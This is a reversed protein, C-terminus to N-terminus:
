LLDEDGYAWEESDDDEYDESGSWFTESSEDTDFLDPIGAKTQSIWKRTGSRNYYYDQGDYVDWYEAGGKSSGSSEEEEEEEEEIKFEEGGFVDEISTTSASDSDEVSNYDYSVDTVPLAQDEGESRDSTSAGVRAALEAMTSVRPGVFFEVPPGSMTGASEVLPTGARRLPPGNFVRGADLVAAPLLKAAPERSRPEVSAVSVTLLSGATAKHEDVDPTLLRQWFAAAVAAHTAEVEGRRVDALVAAPNRRYGILAENDVTMTTPDYLLHVAADVIGTVAWAERGANTDSELMMTYSVSNEDDEMDLAGGSSGTVTVFAAAGLLDGRAGPSSAHAARNELPGVGASEWLLPLAHPAYLIAMAVLAQTPSSGDRVFPAAPLCTMGFVTTRRYDFVDRLIKFMGGRRQQTPNVGEDGALSWSVAARLIGHNMNVSGDFLRTLNVSIAAAAANIPGSSGKDLGAFFVLGVLEILTSGTRPPSANPALSAPWRMVPAIRPGDGRNLLKDLGIRADRQLHNVLSDLEDAVQRERRDSSDFAPARGLGIYIMVAFRAAYVGLDADSLVGSRATHPLRDHAPIFNHGRAFGAKALSARESGTSTMWRWHGFDIAESWTTSSILVTTYFFERLTQRRPVSCYWAFWDSLGSGAPLALAARLMFGDATGALASRSASPSASAPLTSSAIDLARGILIRFTDLVVTKPALDRLLMDVRELPSDIASATLGAMIDHLVHDVLAEEEGDPRRDSSEDLMSQIGHVLVREFAAALESRGDITTGRPASEASPKSAHLVGWRRTIFSLVYPPCSERAHVSAKILDQASPASAVFDFLAVFSAKLKLRTGESFLLGLDISRLVDYFDDVTPWGYIAGPSPQMAVIVHQAVLNGISVQGLGSPIPRISFGALYREAYALCFGAAASRFVVSPALTTDSAANGLTYAFLVAELGRAAARQGRQLAGAAIIEWARERADGGGTAGGERLVDILVCEELVGDPDAAGATWPTVFLEDFARRFTAIQEAYDRATVVERMSAAYATQVLRNTFSTNVATLALRAIEASAPFAFDGSHRAMAAHGLRKEVLERWRVLAAAVVEGGSRPRRPTHATACLEPAEFPM